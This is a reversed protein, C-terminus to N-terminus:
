FYTASLTAAFASSTISAQIAKHSANDSKRTLSENESYLYHIALGIGWSSSVRWEKGVGVRFGFGFDSTWTETEESIQYQTLMTAIDFYINPSPLYWTLLVGIGDLSYTEGKTPVNDKDPNVMAQYFLTGAIAVNQAMAGGIALNFHMLPGGTIDATKMVPGPTSLDWEGTPRSINDSAFGSGFELRLFFGAHFTDVDGSRIEPSSPLATQPARDPSSDQTIATFLLASILSALM